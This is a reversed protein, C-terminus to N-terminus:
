RVIAIKTVCASSGESDSVLVNYVGSAVRKGSADTGNWGSYTIGDCVGKHVLKGSATTILVTCGRTLGTISIPGYYEAGVPNPYAYVNDDSYDGYTDKVDSQYEFLGNDTGFYVKGTTDDIAISYVLNARLPSNETNFHAVETFDDGNVVYVGNERTAVWLRGAKDFQVDQTTLGKLLYDALNTGDNRSVKPQVWRLQSSYSLDKLLASYNDNDIYAIFGRSGFWINRSADQGLYAGYKYEDGLTKGDDNIFDSIICWKNQKPAYFGLFCHSYHQNEFWLLGNHDFFPHTFRNVTFKDNPNSFSEWEGSKGIKIVVNNGRNFVWLSGEPDFTMCAVDNNTFKTDGIRGSSDFIGSADYYKVLQGNLYEYMGTNSAVFIHEPNRPDIEFRNANEALKDKHLLLLSQNLVNWEGDKLSQVLLPTHLHDTYDDHGPVSYLIGNSCKLFFHKNNKINTPVASGSLANYEEVTMAKREDSPIVVEGSAIKDKRITEVVMESKADIKLTGAGKTTIYIFNGNVSVTEITKDEVGSYDRLATIFTVDDKQDLIDILYDSYIIFLKKQSAVWAIHTIDSSNLGNLRNYEQMSNDSKHYAFMNGDSLVFYTNGAPEVYNINCYATHIQWRNMDEIKASLSVAALISLFISILTKKM